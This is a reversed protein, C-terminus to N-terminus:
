EPDRLRESPFARKAAVRALRITWFGLLALLTPWIASGGGIAVAVALSFSVIALASFAYAYFM